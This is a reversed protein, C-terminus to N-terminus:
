AGETGNRAGSEGGQTNGEETSAGKESGKGSHEENSVGLHQYIQEIQKSMKEIKARLELQLEKQNM